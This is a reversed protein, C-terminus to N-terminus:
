PLANPNPVTGSYGTQTTLFRVLANSVQALYAGTGAYPHNCGIHVYVNSTSGTKDTLQVIFGSKTEKCARMNVAPTPGGTGPPLARLITVLDDTDSPSLQVSRSLWGDRYWCLSAGVPHGVAVTAPHGSASSVPPVLSGVQAHCGNADVPLALRTSDLLRNAQAPDPSEVSIVVNVIPLVLVQVPGLQGQPTGSGRRAPQGDVTVPQTALAARARGM